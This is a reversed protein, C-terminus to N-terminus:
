RLRVGVLRIKKKGLFRLVLKLLARKYVGPTCLDTCGPPTRKNIKMQATHTEFDFYRIKVVLTSFKFKEKEAKQLVDQLLKLAIEIIKRSSSIDEEFTIEKGISKRQRKTEIPRKDIGRSFLYIDKGRKGFIKELRELSLKRLDEVTKIGIRGLKGATKPGIGPIIRINKSQLFREIEEPKVITLGDPKNQDSAIKAILKNPGIGISATLKEKEWIKKKIKQAIEKAKEYSSLKFGLYAEDISVVELLTSYHVLIEMVSQSVKKYRSIDPRLFVAQPCLRYAQSIPMASYVGYKRAIYCATSVVGRGAGGKPDAGIIVPKAALAPNDRKEIAAFFADMDIHFVIKQQVGRPHVSRHVGPTYMKLSDVGM